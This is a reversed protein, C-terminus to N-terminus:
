EDWGFWEDLDRRERKTPRGKRQALPNARILELKQYEEASTLDLMYSPVLKAGVRRDTLGVVKVKRTIPGSHFAIEQGQKIERSPKIPTDDIKVKGNRCAETAQTRTKFLRVAWLWKDIRVSPEM